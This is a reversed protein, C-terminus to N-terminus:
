AIVEKKLLDKLEALTMGNGILINKDNQTIAGGRIIQGQSQEISSVTNYQSDPFHQIINGQQQQQKEKDPTKM